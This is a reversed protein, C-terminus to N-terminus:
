VEVGSCPWPECAGAKGEAIKFTGDAIESIEPIGEEM